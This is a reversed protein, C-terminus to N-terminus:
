KLWPALLDAIPACGGPDTICARVRRQEIVLFTPVSTVQLREAVDPREEIDIRILEFTNHNGRRQLVQALYAEATRSRGSRASYAFVLKPRGPDDNPTGRKPEPDADV